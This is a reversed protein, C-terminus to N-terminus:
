RENTCGFYGGTEAGVRHSGRLATWTWPRLIDSVRRLYSKFGNWLAKQAKVSM